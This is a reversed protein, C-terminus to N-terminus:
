EFGGSIALSHRSIQMDAMGMRQFDPEFCRKWIRLVNNKSPMDARARTPPSALQQLLTAGEAFGVFCRLFIKCKSRHLCMNNRHPMVQRM